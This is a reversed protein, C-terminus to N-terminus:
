SEWREVIECDEPPMCKECLRIDEWVVTPLDDRDLSTYYQRWHPANAPITSKCKSCIKPTKSKTQSFRYRYRKRLLLLVHQRM